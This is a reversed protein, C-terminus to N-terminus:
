PKKIIYIGDRFIRRDKGKPRVKQEINAATQGVEYKDIGEITIKTGSVKINVKEKEFPIVIKDRSGIFNEVIIKDDQVKISAPFHEYVLALEAYYGQSVGIIANRILAAVTGAQEKQADINKECSVIITDEAKEIKIINKDFTVKLEGKNGKVIVESEKIEISVSEPVKVKFKTTM